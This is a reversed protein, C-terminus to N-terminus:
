LTGNTITNERGTWSLLCGAAMVSSLSVRAVQDQRGKEKRRQKIQEEQCIILMLKVLPEDPGQDVVLM